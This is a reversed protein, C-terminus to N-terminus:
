RKYLLRVRWNEVDLVTTDSTLLYVGGDACQFVVGIPGASHTLVPAPLEIFDLDDYPAYRVRQPLPGHVDCSFHWRGWDTTM